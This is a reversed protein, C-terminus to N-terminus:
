LHAVRVPAKWREALHEAVLRRHCFHPEAESCLLCSRDLEAPSLREDIRRATMLTRFRDSYGDWDLQGKRSDAFVDPSPALMPEEAYGIGAISKLFFALDDRKAFGTLQSTNQLRVDIVREVGAQSQRGFFGKASSKTFGITFLRIM